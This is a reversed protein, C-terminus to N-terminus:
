SDLFGSSAVVLQHHITDLLKAQWAFECAHYFLCIDASVSKEYEIRIVGSDRPYRRLLTVYGAKVASVVDEKDKGVVAFLIVVKSHHHLDNIRYLKPFLRQLWEGAQMCFPSLSGDVAIHRATENAYM